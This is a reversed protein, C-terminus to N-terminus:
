SMSAATAFFGAPRTTEIGALLGALEQLGSAGRVGEADVLLDAVGSEVGTALAEGLTEGPRGLDNLDVELIRGTRLLRDGGSDLCIGRQVADEGEPGGSRGRRQRGDLLEVEGALDLERGEVERLVDQIRDLGTLHLEGDVLLLEELAIQRDYEQGVVLQVAENRATALRDQGAWADDVLRVHVGDDRIGPRSALRGDISCPHGADLRAGAM